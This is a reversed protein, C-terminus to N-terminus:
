TQVSPRCTSGFSTLMTRYCGTRAGAYVEASRVSPAAFHSAYRVMSRLHYVNRVRPVNRPPSGFEADRLVREHVHDVDHTIVGSHDFIIKTKALRALLTRMSAIGFLSDFQVADNVARKDLLPM